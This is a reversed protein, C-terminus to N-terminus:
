FINIEKSNQPHAGREPAGRKSIEPDAVPKQEFIHRKRFLRLLLSFSIQLCRFVVVSRSV